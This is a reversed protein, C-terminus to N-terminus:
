KSIKKLIKIRIETQLEDIIYDHSDVCLRMYSEYFDGIMRGSKILQKIIGAEFNDQGSSLEVFNMPEIDLDIIYRMISPLNTLICLDDPNKIQKKYALTSVDKKTKDSYYACISKKNSFIFKTIFKTINKKYRLIFYKYICEGIEVVNTYGAIDEIDLGLSFKNDIETIISIFFDRLHENVEAVINQDDQYENIYVECKDVIIDIYNINTSMPDSIQEMISEKILEFPLEALLGGTEVTSSLDYEDQDYYLSM